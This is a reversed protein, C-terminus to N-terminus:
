GGAVLQTKTGSTRGRARRVVRRLRVMGEVAVVARALLNMAQRVMLTVRSCVHNLADQARSRDRTPRGHLRRRGSRDGATAAKRHHGAAAFRYAGRRLLRNRRARDGRQGLCRRALRHLARRCILRRRRARGGGDDGATLLQATAPPAVLMALVLVLGLVQLSVAVTLGILTLLGYQMAAVPLGTAAAMTPDYATFLLEKYFLGVFALIGLSVGLIIWIDNWTVALVSGFVFSFLDVTYGSQRSVLLLGIAFSALFIIGIATDYRVLGRRGIFGIALASLLAAIAAGLQLNFGVVFAVAVGGFSAHPLADGVFAMGKLVVYSGVIAAVISVLVAAILGRQMFELAWPERLFDVFETV